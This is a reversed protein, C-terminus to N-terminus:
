CIEEIIGGGVLMDGSYFVVSQGKTIARQKENFTVKIKDKSYPVVKAQARKASYRIKAELTIENDIGDFPIFNIDKAILSDKLIYKEDGLVVENTKPLIDVVFMPKGLSIGLGKRQGITYNIIGKHKGLKNGSKDIFNGISVKNVRDNIYKGHNNDVIFCIEMSDKKDHVNLGIKKAISRIKDKTYNGCPMLIHKLVEQKLGYLMYTQDKKSDEANIILYREKEKIVSAYHGTALYDAGLEKAKKLLEGFKISKNCEVCPNPTRGNTYEDIFNGIVKKNFDDVLNVKYFPIDLMDAVEKADKSVDAEPCVVMTIGIVNYGQEKLLYAAVSSDVGGSLAVAVTQRENM